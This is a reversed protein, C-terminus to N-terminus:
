KSAPPGKALAQARLNAQCSYGALAGLACLVSEIHVGKENKMGDVLRQFIEKGGLKAGVLPDEKSQERIARVLAETKPDMQSPVCDPPKSGSLKKFMKKLM